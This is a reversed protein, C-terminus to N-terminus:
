QLPQSNRWIAWGVALLIISTLAITKVRELGQDKQIKEKLTIFIWYLGIGLSGVLMVVLLIAWGYALVFDVPSGKGINEIM